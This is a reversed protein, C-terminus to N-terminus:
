RTVNQVSAPRKRPASAPAAAGPLTSVFSYIGAGIDCTLLDDQFHATAVGPADEIPQESETVCALSQAPIRVPARTNPPITTRLEFEAGDLRWECSVKGQISDYSMRAYALGGGPQPAVRIRQFGKEAPTIGGITGYMWGGVAGFAYHNFSNMAPDKFGENETWGDWHEWITTSSSDQSVSTSM